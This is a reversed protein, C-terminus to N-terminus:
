KRRGGGHDPVIGDDLNAKAFAPDPFAMHVFIDMVNILCNHTNETRSDTLNSAWSATFNAASLVWRVDRHAALIGFLRGPHSAHRALQLRLPVHHLLQQGQEKIFPVLSTVLSIDQRMFM